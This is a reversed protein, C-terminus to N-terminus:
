PFFNKQGHLGPLSKGDIKKIGCIRQRTPFLKSSVYSLLVVHFLCNSCHQNQHHGKAQAGALLPLFGSRIVAGHCVEDIAQIFFDSHLNAQRLWSRYICSICISQLVVGAQRVSGHNFLRNETLGQDAGLGVGQTRDTHCLALIGLRQKLYARVM